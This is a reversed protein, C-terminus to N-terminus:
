VEYRYLSKHDLLASPRVDWPPMTEELSIVRGSQRDDEPLRRKPLYTAKPHKQQWRDWLLDVFAHHLWFVPDNPSAAGLMEGGVWRHVRNHNLWPQRGGGTTWGELRNRFGKAPTSDWPAVDYVSENLASALEAKTPLVIPDRPRGLDRTLFRDDTVNGSITWYGASYAFPGTMVQQDSSRGTGGLFDESWLAAAPTRDVTWDWYPVTVKPDIERLAGEFELLFRRHWPFFSPTMHAARLGNEADPVYFETHTQVFDEYRGRRKLELIAGVFSRREAATLNRQNKRTYM